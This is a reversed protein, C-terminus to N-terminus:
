DLVRILLVVVQCRMCTGMLISTNLTMVREPERWEEVTMRQPKRNAVM